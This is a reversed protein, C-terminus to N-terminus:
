IQPMSQVQEPLLHHFFAQYLCHFHLPFALSLCHFPLPAVAAAPWLFATDQAACRFIPVSSM